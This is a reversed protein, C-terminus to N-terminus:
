EKNLLQEAQKRGIFMVELNSSNVAAEIEDETLTKNKLAKIVAIQLHLHIGEKGAVEILKMNSLTSVYTNIQNVGMGRVQPSTSALAVQVEDATLKKGELAKSVAVTMSADVGDSGAIEMLKITSLSSVYTDIQNVGMVRVQASRSALAVQVEEATLKRKKLTKLAVITRQPAVGDTGLIEMLELNSMKPIDLNSSLGKGSGKVTGKGTVSSTMEFAM